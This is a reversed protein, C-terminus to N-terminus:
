KPLRNRSIWDSFREAQDEINLCNADEIDKLDKVSIDSKGSYIGALAGAMSATSDTDGGANVAALIGTLISDPNSFFIGLSTPVTEAAPLGAGIVNYCELATNYPDKINKAIDWALFIRKEISPSIGPVGFKEGIKTGQIAADRISELTSNPIMAAAVAASWAAASELAVRSGHTPLAARASESAANVPNGPNAMGIPTARLTAAGCSQGEGLPSSPMGTTKPDKGAVIKKLAALTSPGYFPTNIIEYYNEKFIEATAMEDMYGGTIYKEIVYRNYFTDDSGRGRPKIPRYVFGDICYPQDLITLGTINGFIKKVHETPMMEMPLGFADGAYIGVLGAYVKDKLTM